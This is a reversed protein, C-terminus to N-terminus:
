WRARNQTCPLSCYQIQNRKFLGCTARDVVSAFGGRSDLAVDWYPTRIRLDAPKWEVTPLSSDREGQPDAPVISYSTLGLGPVDALFALRADLIHGSSFRDAHILVSPVTRGSSKVALEKAEERGLTVRTEIWQKRRWSVPNFVTVQSFGEGKMRRAISQIAADQVRSSAQLSASLFRRADPLLGVIQVDHHQGVLLNKWSSKRTASPSSTMCTLKM